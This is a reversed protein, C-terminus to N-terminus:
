GRQGHRQSIYAGQHLVVDLAQESIRGDSMGSIDQDGEGRVRFQAGGGNHEVGGCVSRHVHSRKSHEAMERSRAFLVDRKLVVSTEAPLRRNQRCRQCEEQHRQDANRDGAAEKCLKVYQGGREIRIQNDQCYDHNQVARQAGIVVQADNDHHIHALRAVFNWNSWHTHSWRKCDPKAEQGSKEQSYKRSAYEIVGSKRSTLQDVIKDVISDIGSGIIPDRWRYGCARDRRRRLSVATLRAWRATGIKQWSRSCHFVRGKFRTRITSMRRM